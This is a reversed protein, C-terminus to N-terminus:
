NKDSQSRYSFLDREFIFVYLIILLLYLLALPTFGKNKKQTLFQNRLSLARADSSKSLKRSRLRKMLSLGNIGTGRKHYAVARPLYNAHWGKTHLRWAVDVDEKYMFFRQDFYGYSDKIEDLAKRRYIGAAASVGWVKEKADFQGRDKEGQGRDYAHKTRKQILGTSDITNTKKNKSFDYFLLKGTVSGLKKDHQLADLCVGVYHTELIVDPNLTMIFSAESMTIGQNVAAAFGVNVTNTLLIIEPFQKKMDSLDESANDIVIVEFIYDTKQAFVSQLCTKLYKKSDYNVIVISLDMNSMM